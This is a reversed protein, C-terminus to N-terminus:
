RRHIAQLVCNQIRNRKAAPEGGGGVAPGAEGGSKQRQLPQALIPKAPDVDGGAVGVQHM